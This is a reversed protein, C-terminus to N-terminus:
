RLMPPDYRAKHETCPACACGQMSSLQKSLSRKLGEKTVKGFRGALSAGINNGATIAAKDEPPDPAGGENTLESILLAGGLGSVRGSGAPIWAFQGTLLEDFKAGLLGAIFGFLFNGLFSAELCAGIVTYCGFESGGDPPCDKPCEKSPPKPTQRKLDLQGIPGIIKGNEDREPPAIERKIKAAKKYLSYGSLSANLDKAIRNMIDVLSDTVDPGCKPVKKKETGPISPDEPEDDDPFGISVWPWWPLNPVGGPVIGGLGVWLIWDFSFGGDTTAASRATAADTVGDVRTESGQRRSTSQSAVRRGTGGSDGPMVGFLTGGGGPEMECRCGAGASSGAGPIEWSSSPSCGCGVM